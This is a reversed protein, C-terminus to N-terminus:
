FELQAVSLECVAQTLRLDEMCGLKMLHETVLWKLGDATPTLAFVADIGEKGPLMRVNQRPGGMSYSNFALRDRAIGAERLVEAEDETESKSGAEETGSKDQETVDAAVEGTNSTLLLRTTSTM